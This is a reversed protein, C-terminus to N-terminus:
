SPRPYKLKIEERKKRINEVDGDFFEHMFEKWNPYEAERLSQYKMDEIKEKYAVKMEEILKLQDNNSLSEFYLEPNVHYTCFYFADRYKQFESHNSM